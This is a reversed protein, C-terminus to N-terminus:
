QKSSKDQNSLKENNNPTVDRVDDEIHDQYMGDSSYTKSSNMNTFYIIQGNSVRKEFYRSVFKAILPRTVPFLCCLGFIDTAFGPTLLLIGGIFILLAEVSETGPMQGSSIKQQLKNFVSRGQSRAFSAGIFGTLVVLFLTEAGGIVDSVFLLLYVEFIPISIFLLFLLLM